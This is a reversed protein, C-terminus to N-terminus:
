WLIEIPDNPGLIANAAQLAATVTGEICPIDIGTKVWDGAFCLNSLTPPNAIPRHKLTGPKMLVYRAHRDINGRVYQDLTPDAPHLPAHLKGTDFVGGAVANPLVKGLEDNVFTRAEDLAAADSAARDIPDESDRSWGGGFPGSLYLLSRPRPVPWPEIALIEDETLMSNLPQPFGGLVRSQTPWGLVHLPDKLWLQTHLTAVTPIKVIDALVAHAAHNRLVLATVPAPLACIVWDFDVGDVLTVDGGVQDSVADSMPDKGAIASASLQAVDARSAV